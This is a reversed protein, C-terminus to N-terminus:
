KEDRGFVIQSPVIFYRSKVSVMRARAEVDMRKLEHLLLGVLGAGVAVGTGGVFVLVVAVVEVAVLVIVIV